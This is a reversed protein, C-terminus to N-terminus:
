GFTATHKIENALRRCEAAVFGTHKEMDAFGLLNDPVKGLGTNVHGCLDAEFEVAETKAIGAAKGLRESHVAGLSIHRRYYATRPRYLGIDLKFHYDARTLFM